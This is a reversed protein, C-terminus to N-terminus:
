GVWGELEAATHGGAARLAEIAGQHKDVEAYDLPTYGYVDVPNVDIGEQALLLKVVADHGKYAAFGLAVQGKANKSNVDINAKALCWKAVEENGFIAAFTLHTNGDDDKLNVDLDDRDLLLRAIEEHGQLIVAPALPTYGHRGQSNVNVGDRELLLKVIGSHRQWAAINLPTDGIKDRPNVVLDDRVLLLRVITENGTIVALALPANGDNDQLNIDVTNRALLLEVIGDREWETAYAIATRGSSDRWNVDVRENELLLTVISQHGEMAARILPTTGNWGKPAINTGERELLLQLAEKQNFIATYTIATDGDSDKLNIDFGNDLLYELYDSLGFYACLHIASLSRACAPLSGVVVVRQSDYLLEMALRRVTTNDCHTRAHIGWSFMAYEAFPTEMLQRQTDELPADSKFIDFALYRLCTTAFHPSDTLQPFTNRNHLFYEQTTYHVLGVVKTSAQPNGVEKSESGATNERLVVLGVCVSTLTAEDYLDQANIATTGDEVALAYQLDRMTMPRAAHILWSFIRYALPRDEDNIRGLTEDYTTELDRPLKALALRLDTVRGVKAELSNMHLQALLFMGDAKKMVGTIIEERLNTNAELLRRFRGTSGALRGEVYKRMDEKNAMIDLRQDPQLEFAIEGTDRSTALLSVGSLAQLHRLLPAWVQVETEDLADAVFMVRSYIEVEVKLMDLIKNFTPRNGAKHKRLSELGSQTVRRQVLQKLIVEALQTMTYRTGYEFYIFVLGIDEPTAEGLEHIVLSAMVSKGVGPNGPCWLTKFEGRTWALFKPHKLFWEGTGPAHKEFTTNHKEGFDLPSLWRVLEQLEQGGVTEKIITLDAQMLDGKIIQDQQNRDITTVADKVMAINNASDRLTFGLDQLDIHHLEIEKMRVRQREELASVAAGIREVNLGVIALEDRTNEIFEVLSTQLALLILSKLRGIEVLMAMIEEKQFPWRLNRMKRAFSSSQGASAMRELEAMTSRLTQYCQNLPGGIGAKVLRDSVSDDDGNYKSLRRHLIDLIAGLASTESLLKLRDEEANGVAQLYGVIKNVLDITTAVTGLVDM